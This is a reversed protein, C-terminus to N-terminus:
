ILEVSEGIKPKELSYEDPIELVRSYLPNWFFVRNPSLQKIQVVKNVDDLIAVAITKSVGFTHIGWRTRFFVPIGTNDGILGKTKEWFSSLEKVRIKM